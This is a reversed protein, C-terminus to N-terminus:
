YSLIIGFLAHAYEGVDLCAKFSLYIGYTLLNYTFFLKHKGQFIIIGFELMTQQKDSLSLEVLWNARYDSYLLSLFIPKIQLEPQLKSKYSIKLSSTM